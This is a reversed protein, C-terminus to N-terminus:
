QMPDASWDEHGHRVRVVFIGAEAMTYIIVHSKYRHIRVPRGFEIRERAMEPFDALATLTELLAEYYSDAQAEGFTALGQRYLAKLDDFAAASLNYGAM